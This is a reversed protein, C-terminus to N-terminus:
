NKAVIKVTNIMASLVTSINFNWQVNTVSIIRVFHVHHFTKKADKKKVTKVNLSATRAFKSIAYRVHKLAIEAITIIVLTVYKTILLFEM